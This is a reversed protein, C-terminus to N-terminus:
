TYLDAHRQALIDELRVNLRQRTPGVAGRDDLDVGVELECGLGPEDGVVFQIFM